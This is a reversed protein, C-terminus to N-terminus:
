YEGTLIYHEHDKVNGAIKSVWYLIQKPDRREEKAITNIPIGNVYYRDFANREYSMSANMVEYLREEQKDDLYVEKFFLEKLLNVPFDSAM